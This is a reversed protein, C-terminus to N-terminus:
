PTTCRKSAYLKALLDLAKGESVEPIQKRGIAWSHIDAILDKGKKTLDYLTPVGDNKNSTRWIYVFDNDIFKKMLGIKRFGMIDRCALFERRPFPSIPAIMMLLNLESFSLDYTRYVHKYILHNFQMFMPTNDAKYIQKTINKNSNRSYLVIDKNGYNRRPDEKVKKRLKKKDMKKRHNACAMCTNSRNDENRRDIYFYIPKKEEHCTDCKKM